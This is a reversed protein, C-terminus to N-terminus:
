FSCGFTFKKHANQNDTLLLSCSHNKHGLWLVRNFNKPRIKEVRNKTWIWMTSHCRFQFCRSMIHTTTTTSRETSIRDFAAAWMIWTHTDFGTISKWVDSMWVIWCVNLHKKIRHLTADSRFSKTQNSKVDLQQQSQKSGICLPRNITREQFKANKICYINKNRLKRNICGHIPGIFVNMGLTIASQQKPKVTFCSCIWAFNLWKRNLSSFVLFKTKKKMGFLFAFCCVRMSNIYEKANAVSQGYILLQSRVLEM